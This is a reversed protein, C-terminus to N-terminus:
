SESGAAKRQKEIDVMLKTLTASEKKLLRLGRRARVGASVNGRANKQVDLETSEVLAKIKNWCESIADNSM